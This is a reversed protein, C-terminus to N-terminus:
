YFEADLCVPNLKGVSVNSNTSNLGHNNKTAIIALNFKAENGTECKISFTFGDILNGGSNGIRTYGVKNFISNKFYATPMIRMESFDINCYLGNPTYVNPNKISCIEQYYYKCKLLEESKHPLVFPTVIDGEELKTWQMDISGSSGEWIGIGVYFRTVNEPLTIKTSVIKWEGNGIMAYAVNKNNSSMQLYAKTGTSVRIKVSFTLTKGSYYHCDEILQLIQAYKDQKKNILTIYNDFVKLINGDPESNFRWRDVTYSGGGTYGKEIDSLKIYYKTTGDGGLFMAYNDDIDTIRYNVQLSENAIQTFNADYYAKAGLKTIYGDRQNVRFDPNILINPNSSKAYGDCKLKEVELNPIIFPTAKEGVELKASSISLKFDYPASTMLLINVVLLRETKATIGLRVDNLIRTHALEYESDQPFNPSPFRWNAPVKLRASQIVGNKYYQISFILPKGELDSSNEIIQRLATDETHIQGKKTFIVGNKGIELLSNGLIKWKDVCDLEHYDTISYSKEGKQNIKFNPNLIYNENNRESYGNCKLKEVEPNPPVFPTAREGIELKTWAIDVTGTDCQFIGLGVTVLSTTDSIKGTLSVIEWDGTNKAFSYEEGESDRLRLLVQEAHSRLKVSYTVQQGRLPEINKIEQFIDEWESLHDSGITIYDNQITVVNTDYGGTHWMDVIPVDAGFYKKEVDHPSVYYTYGDDGTLAAHTDTIYKVERYTDSLGLNSVDTLLKPEKYVTCGRKIYYNVQSAIKFDPNMLYNSKRIEEIMKKLFIDNNLLKRKIGNEIEATIFEEEEVKYIEESFQPPNLIELNKM